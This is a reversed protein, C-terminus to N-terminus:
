NAGQGYQTMAASNEAEQGKYANNVTQAKDGFDSILSNLGAITTSLWSQMRSHAQYLDTAHSFNVGFAEAPVETGYTSRDATQAMNQQIVRLRKVVAELEDTNVRYGDAM